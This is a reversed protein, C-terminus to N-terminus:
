ETRKFMYCTIYPQLNNHPQNGGEYTTRGEETASTTTGDQPWKHTGGEEWKRVGLMKHSHNPMEEYTLKHVKEGGTKEVENFETQTTDVGVPVKGKGWLEWAGFGFIDKPNTEVTTMYISGVPHMLQFAYNLTNADLNTGGTYESDVVNYTQGNIIVHAQTKLTANQFNIKEM